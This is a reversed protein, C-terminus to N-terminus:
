VTTVMGLQKSEYYNKVGDRVFKRIISGRSCDGASICIEDLTDKVENSFVVSILSEKERNHPM